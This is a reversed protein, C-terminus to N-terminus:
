LSCHSRGVYPQLNALESDIEVEFSPGFVPRGLREIETRFPAVYRARTTDRHRAM